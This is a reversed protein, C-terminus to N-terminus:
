KTVNSVSFQYAQHGIAVHMATALGHNLPHGSWDTNQAAAFTGSGSRPQCYVREFSRYGILAAAEM